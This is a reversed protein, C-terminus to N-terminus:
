EWMYRYKLYTKLFYSEYGRIIRKMNSIAELIDSRRIHPM